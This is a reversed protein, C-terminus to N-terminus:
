HRRTAGKVCRGESGPGCVRGDVWVANDLRTQTLDADTLVAGVLIAYSLNAGRLDAGTLDAQRLSAGVMSASTLHTGRLSALNLVAYDLDADTLDAHTLDAGSLLVSNLNAKALDAAGAHLGEKHCESWNVGPAPPANCQTTDPLYRDPFLIALVVITVVFLILFVYRGLYSERRVGDAAAHRMQALRSRAAQVAASEPQRRDGGGRRHPQDEGLDAESRRDRGDREDEWRRLLVLRQEDPDPGTRARLLGEAGLEPLAALPRWNARDTSLEDDRRVRGLLAFRRIFEAPFPGQIEAGRRVYWLRPNEQTEGSM